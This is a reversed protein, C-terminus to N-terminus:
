LLPVIPGHDPQELVNSATAPPAPDLPQTPEPVGTMEGYLDVSALDNGSALLKSHAAVVSRLMISDVSGQFDLPPPSATRAGGSETMSHAPHPASALLDSASASVSLAFASAPPARSPWSPHNDAFCRMSQQLKHRSQADCRGASAPVDFLALSCVDGLDNACTTSQRLFDVIATARRPLHFLLLAPTLIVGLLEQALLVIKYNYLSDMREKLELLESGSVRAITRKVKNEHAADDMAASLSLSSREISPPAPMQRHPVREPRHHAIHARTSSHTLACVKAYIKDPSRLSGAPTVLGWSRALAVFCTFCALYGLLTYGAVHVNTLIGSDVFMLFLLVAALAGPCFALTNSLHVLTYNPYEDLLRQTWPAARELRSDLLHPLENWERLKWKAYLSWRRFGLQTRRSHFDETYRFFFLVVVYMLVFPMAVLNLLGMCLLKRRLVHREGRWCRCWSCWSSLSSSPPSAPEAAGSADDFFSRRLAWDDDFMTSFICHQLNWCLSSSFSWRELWRLWPRGFPRQLDFVDADVLAIFFNDTRMIRNAVHLQSVPKRVMSLRGDDQLQVMKDVVDSWSLTPLDEDAIDLVHHYFDRVVRVQLVTRVLAYVSWCWYVAFLAGTLLMFSEWHSPATWLTASWGFVHSGACAQTDADARGCAFLVSWHVGLALFLFLGISFGSSCAQAVSQAMMARFGHEHFYTYLRTLFADLRYVAGEYEATNDLPHEGAELREADVKAERRTEEVDDRLCFYQAASTAYLSGSDTM